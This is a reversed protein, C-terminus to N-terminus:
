LVPRRSPRRGISPRADLETKSPADGTEIWRVLLRAMDDPIIRIGKSPDTEGRAPALWRSVAGQTVGFIAAVETQNLRRHKMAANLRQPLSLGRWGTDANCIEGPALPQAPPEGWAAAEAVDASHTVRSGTRDEFAVKRKESWDPPLFIYAKLRHGLTKDDLDLWDELPLWLPDDGGDNRDKATLKGVVVGGYEDVVVRRLDDIVNALIDGRRDHANGSPVAYGMKEILGGPIAGAKGDPRASRETGYLTFGSEASRRFNGLAAVFTRGTPLLPCFGSDYIRPTAAEFDNDAVKFRGRGGTRGGAIPASKWTINQEIFTSLNHQYNTLQATASYFPTGADSRAYKLRKREDKSLEKAFNLL